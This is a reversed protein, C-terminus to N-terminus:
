LIRRVIRAGGTPPLVVARTAQDVTNTVEIRPVGNVPAMAGAPALRIFTRGRPTFCMEVYGLANGTPDVFSAQAPSYRSRRDDFSKVFLNQDAGDAWNTGVCNSVPLFPSFPGAAGAVAEKMTFRGAPNANTPLAASADWRVMVASGRGMARARARRYLDAINRAADDVRRDRLLSVFSPAAAAVLIGIVAIVTLLEVITFGRRRHMDLRDRM